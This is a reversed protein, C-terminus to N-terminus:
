SGSDKDGDSDSAAPTEMREVLWVRLDDINRSYRSSAFAALFFWGAPTISISSVPTRIEGTTSDMTQMREISIPPGLLENLAGKISGLTTAESVDSAVVVSPVSVACAPRVSLASAGAVSAAAVVSVSAGLRSPLLADIFERRGASDRMKHEPKPSADRLEAVQMRERALVQLRRTPAFAPQMAKANCAAAASPTLLLSAALKFASWVSVAAMWRLSLPLLLRHFKGDCSSELGPLDALSHWQHMTREVQGRRTSLLHAGVLSGAMRTEMPGAGAEWREDRARRWDCARLSVERGARSLRGKIQQALRRRRREAWRVELAQRQASPTQAVAAFSQTTLLLVLAMRMRVATVPMCLGTKKM